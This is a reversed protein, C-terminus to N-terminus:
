HMTQDSLQARGPPAYALTIPLVGDATKFYASVADTPKVLGQFSRVLGPFAKVLSTQKKFERYERQGNKQRRILAEYDLNLDGLDNGEFFVVIAHRTKASIGYDELYSLQTLPGTYSVGLNLVAANLFKGLLTTFLEEYPLYGIETFSDGAVVIDWDSMAEPNRFGNRNYKITVLQENGYPNPQINLQRLMTNLVQGSWEEPGSRRFFAEGTPVIPYRYFVPTMRWIREQKAFDFGIARFFTECLALFVFLSLLSICFNTLVSSIVRWSIFGFAIIALGAFLTLSQTLGWGPSGGFIFDALVAALSIAGGALLHALLRVRGGTTM